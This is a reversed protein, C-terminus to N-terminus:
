YAFRLAAAAECQDDAKRSNLSTELSLLSIAALYVGFCARLCTVRVVAVVVMVGGSLRVKFIEYNAKAILWLSALKVTLSLM